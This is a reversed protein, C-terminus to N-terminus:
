HQGGVQGVHKGGEEDDEECGGKGLVECGFTKDDGKEYGGNDQCREGTSMHPVMFLYRFVVRTHPLAEVKHEYEELGKICRIHTRNVRWSMRKVSQSASRELREDDVSRLWRQVQPSHKRDLSKRPCDEM